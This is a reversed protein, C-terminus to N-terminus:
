QRRSSPESICIRIWETVNKDTEKPYSYNLEIATELALSHFVEIAALLARKVNEEDYEAFTERLGKVTKPTAWEELFHGLYWVDHKWGHEALAHWEIMRLLPRQLPQYCHTLTWWLEGRRLHKATWVAHYFFDYVVEMFEDQTPRRSSPKKVSAAVASITAALGDKDVLVRVGRGYVNWIWALADQDTGAKIMQDVWQVSKRMDEYDLPVFDVDIMGEFLVVRLKDDSATSTDILTLLPKGFNSIWDFKSLYSQYSDTTIFVIDIDSWKDAPHNVRAKSGLIWAARIDSRTEAWKCFRELLEEYSKEIESARRNTMTESDINLERAKRIDESYNIVRRASDQFDGETYHM